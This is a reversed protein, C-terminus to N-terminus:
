EREASQPDTSPESVDFMNTAIETLKKSFKTDKTILKYINDYQALCWMNSVENWADNFEQPAFQLRITKAPTFAETSELVV